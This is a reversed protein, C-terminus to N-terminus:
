GVKIWNKVQSDFVFRGSYRKLWSEKVLGDENRYGMYVGYSENVNGGAISLQHNQTFANQMAEKQWDTDYLPNGSPDFLLPDKRKLKPDKYKGAAWGTPDYKQANQYAIDEVLLFERSNLLDLKRTLSGSSFDSDYNIRGGDQSGRKTTVLIVGNAGRAGYIATASADKLVEISSIDNPNIYDIPTSGNALNAVNLIVDDIVYLPNNTVSVSTNGRIRINARGGPRGSNVSVNVGTIRGALAQNLSAAPREQLTEGKVSGVAGTLDSKRQVGYGVVVVEDLSKEDAILVVNVAQRNNVVVEQMLYGVYTFVLINSGDPMTLSYQGNIDTSVGNNTGKVKVSVGILPEGKVDTVQGRVVVDKSPNSLENLPETSEIGEQASINNKIIIKNGIVEYTLNHPLIENLVSELKRDQAKVSIYIKRLDSKSSYVFDAQTQQNIQKIVNRLTENQVSLNVKRQLVEQAAINYSFCLQFTTILLIITLASYRMIRVISKNPFYFLNM